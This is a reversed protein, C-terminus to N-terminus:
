SEMDIEELTTSPIEEGDVLDDLRAELAGIRAELSDIIEELDMKPIYELCDVQDTSGECCDNSNWLLDIHECTVEEGSAPSIFLMALSLLFLKLFFLTAKQKRAM